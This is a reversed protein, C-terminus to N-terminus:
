LPNEHIYIEWDKLSQIVLGNFNSARLHNYLKQMTDRFFAQPKHAYSNEVGLEPEVSQALSFMLEPYQQMASKMTMAISNLNMSYYMVTIENVGIEKFQCPICLGFSTEQTLYRPHISIAVPWPSIRTAQRITEIFEELKNEGALEGVLQDPEIDLHLGDFNISKLRKIIELLRVREKPLIWGPDGLLLEIKVGQHGAEQLFKKLVAPHSAVSAIQKKNLSLLIRNIRMAQIKEWFGPQSMIDDFNWAYVSFHLSTSSLRSVTSQDNLSALKMPKTEKTSHKEFFQDAKRLPELMGVLDTESHVIESTSSPTSVFQRLRVHLKWQEAEAEVYEIAARYYTNIAQIYKEFVDGDLAHLRLYRERVFERAANLRTKQFKIQQILQQYRGLMSRFELNLEQDRRTYETQFSILQSNLRSQENKRYSVIELPMRFNFGVVGGYGWQMSDPSPYPIAPGGFATVSVDSDIGQWNQTERIKRINDIQTQLIELDLQKIDYAITNTVEKLTPKIAEFPAISTNTLHALRILAQEKNNILELRTQEAREFAALFEFYDSMLLLGTEHRQRLTKEIGANRLHIYADNLALMKEASWYAAYNEEMFLAALRKSWVHRVDEIKVQTEADGIARDQREASGLLPYRLGIRALPDFFHGFPERAFPNKSYGGSVGGFVEWGKQAENAQLHFRQAELDAQTKLVSAAQDLHLYFDALTRVEAGASIPLFIFFVLLLYWHIKM